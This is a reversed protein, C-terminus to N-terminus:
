FNKYVRNEYRLTCPTQIIRTHFYLYAFKPFTLGLFPLKWTIPLFNNFIDSSISRLSLFKSCELYGQLKKLSITNEKRLVNTFTVVFEVVGGSSYFGIHETGQLM